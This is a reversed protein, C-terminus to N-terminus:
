LGAGSVPGVYRVRPPVVLRGGRGVRYAYAGIDWAGTRSTGLIDTGFLTGLNLGRGILPSGERLRFDLKEVDM